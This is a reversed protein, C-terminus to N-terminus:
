DKKKYFSIRYSVTLSPGFSGSYGTTITFPNDDPHYALSIAKRKDIKSFVNSALGIGYQISLNNSIRYNLGFVDFLRITNSEITYMFGLKKNLLINRSAVQYRVLNPGNDPNFLYGVGFELSANSNTYTKSSTFNKILEFPKDQSYTNTTVCFILAFIIKRLM